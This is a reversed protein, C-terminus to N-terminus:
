LPYSVLETQHATTHARLLQKRNLYYCDSKSRSVHDEPILLSDFNQEVSVAPSLNDYVSFLPNGRKNVFRKYFYDVIRQRILSLPHCPTTHLNRGVFTVIKDTVNTYDDRKYQCGQVITEDQPHLVQKASVSFPRCIRPSCRLYTTTIM